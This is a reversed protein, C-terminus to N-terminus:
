VNKKTKRIKNKSGKKVTKNKGGKKNTIMEDNYEDEITNSKNYKVNLIKNEDISFITRKNKNSVRKKKSLLEEELFNGLKNSDYNCSVKKYKEDNMEGKIFDALINIEYVDSKTDHLMDIYYYKKPIKKTITENMLKNLIDLVNIKTKFDISSGSLTIEIADQLLENKTEKYQYKKLTDYLKKFEPENYLKAIISKTDNEDEKKERYYGYYRGYKVEENYNKEITEFSNENL